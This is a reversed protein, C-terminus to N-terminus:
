NQGKFTNNEFHIDKVLNSKADIHVTRSKSFSRRKKKVEEEEKKYYELLAEKL